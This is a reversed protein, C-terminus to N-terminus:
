EVTFPVTLTEKGDIYLVIKYDGTPWATDSNLSFNLYRTGDATLEYETIYHDTEGEVYYWEAKVATDDPANSLKVSCVIQPANVSFVDTNDLPRSNEDVATCMTAESLSATTFSVKGGCGVLPMVLLFSALVLTIALFVKGKMKVL